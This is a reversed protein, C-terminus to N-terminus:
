QDPSSPAGVMWTITEIDGMSCLYVRKHVQARIWLTVCRCWVGHHYWMIGMDISMVGMYVYACVWTYMHAYVYIHV